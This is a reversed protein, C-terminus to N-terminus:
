GLVPEVPCLELAVDLGRGEERGREGSGAVGMAGAGAGFREWGTRVVGDMGLRNLREPFQLLLSQVDRAPVRYVCSVRVVRDGVLVRELSLCLERLKPDAQWRLFRDTADGEVAGWWGSRFCIHVVRLAPFDASLSRYSLTSSLYATWLGRLDRDRVWLHLSTIQKALALNHAWGFMNCDSPHTFAFTNEAYLVSSAEAHLLRSTLLLAPTLHHTFRETPWSLPAPSTLLYTYVRDRLERPLSFFISPTPEPPSPPLPRQSPSALASNPPSTDIDMATDMNPTSKM